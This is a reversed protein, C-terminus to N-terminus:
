DYRLARNPDVRAARRAPLYSALMSVGALFVTLAGFTPPDWPRVEYLFSSLVRTTGLAAAVGLVLGVATLRLGQGVILGVVGSRRAGLAMRIGIERSRRAVSYAMLGYLGVGALILALVGFTALLASLFRREAVTNGLREEMSRVEGVPLQADLAWVEAKVLDRLQDAPLPSKLLLSTFPFSMETFLGYITPVPDADLQNQHVDGVVGIIPQGGEGDRGGGLTLRRGLADGEPFYQEAFARSVVFGKVPADLDEGTFPRGMELPIGLARFYGPSAAVFTALQQRQPETQGELLFSLNIQAGTFPIGVGVAAQRLQPHAELGELLSRFFRNRLEATPYRAAPVEVQLTSVKEPEFGPDIARLRDLSRLMLGAGILLVLALAVEVTVLGSRLRRRGGADGDAGDKLGTALQIRLSEWAPLLGALLGALLAAILGFALVRGDVAMSDLRPVDAPALNRFATVGAFALAVGLIGGVGGLLLSEVMAHGLIRRQSAGLALQIAQERRRTLARAMLLNAVNSCAVLLVLLVAGLLVWLQRGTDGILQDKLPHLFYRVEEYMPAFEQALRSQLGDLQVRSASLGQDEDLRGVINFYSMRRIETVDGPFPHPLRPIDKEGPIWLRAGEPYEFTRPMVAVVRYSEGDLELARGLIEPDGAFRSRWLGYSLVVQRPDSAEGAMTEFGEGLLPRVALTEFLNSSVSAADLRAPEGDGTLNVSIQGVGAVQSLAGVDRRLDLLEAPAFAAFEGRPTTKNVMFLNEPRGFPLDALLVSDVASFITTTAGVGLGLVLIVAISLGPVRVLRRLGFVIERIVQEMSEGKKGAGPGVM